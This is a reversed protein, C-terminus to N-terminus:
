EYNEKDTVDLTIYANDFHADSVMEDIDYNDFDSMLLQLTKMNNIAKTNEM